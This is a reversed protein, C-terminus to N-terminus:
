VCVCVCVCKPTNEETEPNHLRLAAVKRRYCTSPLFARRRKAVPASAIEDFLREKFYIYVRIDRKLTACARARSFSLSPACFSKGPFINGGDSKNCIENSERNPQVRHFKTSQGPLAIYCYSEANSQFPSPTRSTIQLSSPSGRRRTM